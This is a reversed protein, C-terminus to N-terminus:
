GRGRGRRPVKHFRRQHVRAHQRFYELAGPRCREYLFRLALYVVLGILLANLVAGVTFTQGWQLASMTGATVEGLDEVVLPPRIFVSGTRLNLVFLVPWFFNLSAGGVLGAVVNGGLARAVFGSVLVGLGMTPFFNVALGMAFGRAVRETAGRIRTLRIVQYLFGREVRIWLSRWM